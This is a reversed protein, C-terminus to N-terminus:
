SPQSQLPQHALGQLLLETARDAADQFPDLVLDIGLMKLEETEISNQSVTALKGSFGASRTLQIITKRTDESSLGAHHQPITSVLWQTHKLPLQAIFEADTIDGYETELGLYQWHKIAAPNFDLGLVRINKQQLRIAIETGLRGLGFIVVPYASGVPHETTQERPAGSREFIGILPKFFAYLQHSYTIMYTSATITVIGVLTVLGLIDHQLHGLSIGMTIFILSFESIQAVTLGALFGTRNRYGMTGMIGMVILPNGILVFLSFLLAASIHTGLLSLDLTAGLAIFFFLLLFDRLSALRSAISERYPTSALAVGALLGGVEMGLGIINGIAAFFAAQAIAYIVLLEPTKALQQTLPNAIYRVFLIVFLLLGAGATAVQWIATNAGNAHGSGIGITALVIMAVVVVLDQVILFGLAIKGHLADIERKDSLLKVIIITSSFTLAVAVYLSTIHDLGIALGIFYGVISTFAVQGLGTMISVSGISRILKVDLKIGVLFLLVAIGLESLLQIQEKSQVIDLVSPGSILGVAIFSVILPQKLLLGIFGMIAALVLLAAIETFSSQTILEVM